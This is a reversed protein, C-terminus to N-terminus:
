IPESALFETKSKKLVYLIDVAMEEFANSTMLPIIKSCPFLSPFSDAFFAFSLLSLSSFSLKFFCICDNFSLEGFFGGTSGFGSNVLLIVRNSPWNFPFSSSILFNCSSTFLLFSSGCGSATSLCVGSTFGSAGFSVTLTASNFCRYSSSMLALSVSIDWNFSFCSFSLLVMSVFSPSILFNFPSCSFSLLVMSVFSPSILFNFPSCSFSLPVMSVFSPSILFNFSSCSFSLPVM